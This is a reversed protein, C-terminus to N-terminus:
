IIITDAWIWMKESSNYLSFGHEERRSFKHAEAQWVTWEDGPAVSAKSQKSPVRIVSMQFLVNKLKM